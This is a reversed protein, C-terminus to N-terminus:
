FSGDDVEEDIDLDVGTEMAIFDIDSQRQEDRSASLHDIRRGLENMQESLRGLAMAVEKDM